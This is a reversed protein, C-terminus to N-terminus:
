ILKVDNLVSVVRRAEEVSINTPLNIIKKCIEEAVPCSEQKYKVRDLDIDKPAVVQDYWKGLFINKNKASSIIKDRNKVLLPFRILGTKTMRFSTFRLSSDIGVNRRSYNRKPSTLRGKTLDKAESLIVRSYIKCIDARNKQIRDLKKLQHLLLISLANPYSKNFTSDFIGDKEKQTIEPILIKLRNVLRHILKGFYIDYTSKVVMMLPKYLLCRFIFFYSPFELNNSQQITSNNPSVIAGGFVSSISKSRGFSLLFAHNSYQQITLNNSFGHAVDEIVFLNNQKAIKMIQDRYKPLLDFTHQLILVKAKSTIKKQLDNISMSYTEPEIDAYIPKLNNALIPLVVAECTFAQVLVESGKTLNLSKLLNYLASRGTLFFDIKYEDDTIRLPSILLKKIESITSGKKWKWPQFLLKLSLWADDWSENPALDTSIM